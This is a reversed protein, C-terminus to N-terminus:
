ISVGLRLWALWRNLFVYSRSFEYSAGASCFVPYKADDWAYSLAGWFTQTMYAPTEASHIDFSDITIPVYKATTGATADWTMDIFDTRDDGWVLSKINAFSRTNPNTNIVGGTDMWNQIAEIGMGGAWGANPHVTEGKRAYFDYGIEAKFGGAQYWLASNFEVNYHPHVQVCTTSYNILPAFHGLGARFNAASLNPGPLQDRNNVVLMYRSWPKDRLDFSRLQTNPLLYRAIFSGSVNFTHDREDHMLQFHSDGGAFFGVHKNNGIMPEFLYRACPKDGAPITIGLFWDHQCAEHCVADKGVRLEVFSVGTKRCKKCEIAGYNRAWPKDSTRSADSLGEAATNYLFDAQEAGHNYITERLGMTNEVRMIPAAAEFWWKHYFRQQWTLGLGIFSSKPCFDLKSEYTIHDLNAQFDSANLNDIPITLVGAFVANMDRTFNQASQANDESVLLSSKGNPLFYRAIDSAHTTSGGFLVAQFAGGHGDERAKFRDRFMSIREPSTAEFPSRLTLYSVSATAAHALCLLGILFISRKRNIM